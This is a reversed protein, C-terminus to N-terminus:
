ANSVGFLAAIESLAASAAMADHRELAEEARKLAYRIEEVFAAANDLDEDDADYRPDHANTVPGWTEPDGLGLNSLQSM